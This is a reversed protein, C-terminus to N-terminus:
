RPERRNAAPALQPSKAKAGAVYGLWNRYLQIASAQWQAIATARYSCEPLHTASAGGNGRAVQGAFGALAKESRSDFYHQPLGPATDREGKLYRNMDRRYERFLTDANYEPHGQLFLFLSNWQKAFIDVGAEESRTLVHYGHALLDREALDNWRSHPVRMSRAVGALMPHPGTRTFEFLGFRKTPLRRRGIGDLHLVAAHAALCSWITSITNQEAWDVVETLAQWYPEENLSPKVPESGTVILGDLQGNRFDALHAYASRIHARATTGRPLEPLSFLHLRVVTDGAAAALLDVFQRETARLAADPMNNVLGIELAPSWQAQPRRRDGQLPDVSAATNRAIRAELLLPM